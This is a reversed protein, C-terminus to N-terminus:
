YLQKVRGGWTSCLLRMFFRHRKWLSNTFAKMYLKHVSEYLIWECQSVTLVRHLHHRTAVPLEISVKIISGCQRIMVWISSMLNWGTVKDRPKISPHILTKCGKWCYKLWILVISPYIHFARHLSASNLNPCFRVELPIRVWSGM